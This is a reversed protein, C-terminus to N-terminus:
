VHCSTKSLTFVHPNTLIPFGWTVYTVMLTENSFHDDM